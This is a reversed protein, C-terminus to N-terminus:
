KITIKHTKEKVTPKEKPLKIELIGNNFTADAKDPRVEEPLPMHRYFSSYSRERRYYGEEDKEEERRMEGQIRVSNKTLEIDIDNKTIGPLEAEVIYEKGNDRVDM